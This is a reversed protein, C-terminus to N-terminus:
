FAFGLGLELDLPFPFELGAGCIGTCVKRRLTGSQAGYDASPFRYSDLSLAPGAGADLLFAGRKWRWHATASLVTLTERANSQPTAGYVEQGVSGQLAIGLGSGDPRMSWRAGLAFSGIGNVPRVGLGALVSFHAVGLEIQGGVGDRGVGTGLTFTGRFEEAHVGRSAFASVAIAAMLTRMQRMLVRM